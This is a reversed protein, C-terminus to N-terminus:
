KVAVLGAIGTTKLTTEPLTTPVNTPYENVSHLNTFTFSERHWFNRNEAHTYSFNKRVVCLKPFLVLHAIFYNGWDTTKPKKPPKTQKTPKKTLFSQDQLNFRSPSNSNSHWIRGAIVSALCWFTPWVNRIEAFKCKASFTKNFAVKSFSLFVTANSQKAKCIDLWVFFFRWHSFHKVSFICCPYIICHQPQAATGSEKNADDQGVGMTEVFWRCSPVVRSFHFVQSIWQKLPDCFTLDRRGKVRLSQPFNAKTCAPSNKCFNSVSLWTFAM